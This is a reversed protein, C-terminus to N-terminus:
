SVVDIPEWDLVTYCFRFNTDGDTGSNDTNNYSAWAVYVNGFEVEVRPDDESGSDYNFGEVPESIVQIDEWEENLFDISMRYFIDDDSGAGNYNTRDEFVIYVFGNDVAIDGDFSSGTNQNTGFVPESIVQIDEWGPNLM